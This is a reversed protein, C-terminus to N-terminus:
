TGVLMGIGVMVGLGYGSVCGSLVKWVWGVGVSVGLGRSMGM